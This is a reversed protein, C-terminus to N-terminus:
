EPVSGSQTPHAPHAQIRKLISLTNNQLSISPDIRIDLQLDQNPFRNVMGEVVASVAWDYNYSGGPRVEIWDVEAPRSMEDKYDWLPLYLVGAERHQENSPGIVGVVKEVGRELDFPEKCTKCRVFRWDEHTIEEARTLCEQCFLDPFSTRLHMQSAIIEEIRKRIAERQALFTTVKEPLAAHAEAQETLHSFEEFLTFIGAVKFPRATNLRHTVQQFTRDALQAIQDDPDQKGETLLKVSQPSGWQGMGLVAERRLESEKQKWVGELFTDIEERKGKGILLRIIRKAAGVRYTKMWKKGWIGGLLGAMGFFGGYIFPSAALPVFAGFIPLTPLILIGWATLVDRYTKRNVVNLGHTLAESRKNKKLLRQVRQTSLWQALIDTSFWYLGAWAAGFIAMIIPASVADPM